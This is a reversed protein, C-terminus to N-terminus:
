RLFGCLALANVVLSHTIEGRRLMQKVEDIPTPVIELRETHEPNAVKLPRCNKALFVHCVNNLFAPNPHVSGLRELCEALYGTEERLERLATEEPSEHPEMVGGPIEWMTQRLGHRFQRVLVVCGEPTIPVVNVWDPAELVVFQHVAPDPPLYYCDYRVRFIGHDAIVRSERLEWFHEMCVKGELGQRFPTKGASSTM